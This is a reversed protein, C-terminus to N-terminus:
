SLRSCVRVKQDSGLTSHSPLKQAEQRGELHYSYRTTPLHTQTHTYRMRHTHTCIHAHINRCTKRRHRADATTSDKHTRHVGVGSACNRRTAQQQHAGPHPTNVITNNNTKRPLSHVSKRRQYEAASCHSVTIPSVGTRKLKVPTATFMHLASSCRIDTPGHMGCTRLSFEDKRGSFHASVTSVLSAPSGTNFVQLDQLSLPSMWLTDEAMRCFM